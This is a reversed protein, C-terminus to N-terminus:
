SFAPETLLSSPEVEQHISVQLRPVRLQIPIQNPHEHPSTSRSDGNTILQRSTAKGLFIFSGIFLAAM